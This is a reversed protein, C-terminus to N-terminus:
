FWVYFKQNAIPSSSNRIFTTVGIGAGTTALMLSLIKNDKLCTFYLRGDGVETYTWSRWLSNVDPLVRVPTLASKTEGNLYLNSKACIIYCSSEGWPEIMWEQFFDSGTTVTKLYCDTADRYGLCFKKDFDTYIRFPGRRDEPGRDSNQEPAQGPTTSDPTLPHKKM